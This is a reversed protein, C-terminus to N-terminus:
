LVCSQYLKLSTKISYQSPRWVANLGRFANRAKSLRSQIDKNTGGDQRAQTTTTATKEKYVLIKPSHKKIFLVEKKLTSMLTHVGIGDVRYALMLSCCSLLTLHSHSLMGQCSAHSYTEGILEWM